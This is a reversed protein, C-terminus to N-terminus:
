GWVGAGNYYIETVNGDDNVFAVINYESWTVPADPETKAITWLALTGDLKYAKTASDVGFRVSTPSASLFLQAGSISNVYGAYIGPTYTAGANLAKYPAYEFDTITGGGSANLIVLTGPDISNHLLALTSGPPNTGDNYTAVGIEARYDKVEGGELMEYYVYKSDYSLAIVIAYKDPGGPTASSNLLKGNFLFFTGTDDVSYASIPQSGTINSIGYYKDDNLQVTTATKRTVKGELEDVALLAYKTAPNGVKAALYSKDKVALSAGIVIEKPDVSTMVNNAPVDGVSTVKGDAAVTDTWNFKYNVTSAFIIKGDSNKVVNAPNDGPVANFTALSGTNYDVMFEAGTAYDDAKIAGVTTTEFTDKGTAVVSTAKGDQMLVRVQRGLLEVPATTGDLGKYTPVAADDSLVLKDGVAGSPKARAWDMKVLTGIEYTLGFYEKGLPVGTKKAVGNADYEVTEMNLMNYALQATMERTIGGTINATLDELNALLGPTDNVCRLVNNQWETGVFGEKDRDYGIITMIFTLAQMGTLKENPRFTGDAYGGVLKSAYAWKIHNTYYYGAIDNFTTTAGAFLDANRNGGYRAIYMLMVVEGRTLVEKPNFNGSTSGMMVNLDYMADIATKYKSNIESQDLYTVASATAAFAFVMVAALTIAALKRINRKM